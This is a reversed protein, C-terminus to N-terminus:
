TQAWPLIDASHQSAPNFKARLPFRIPLNPHLATLTTTDIQFTVKHPM